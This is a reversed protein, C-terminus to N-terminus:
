FSRYRSLDIGDDPEYDEEGALFWPDVGATGQRFGAAVRREDVRGPLRVRPLYPDVQRPAIIVRYVAGKWERSVDWNQQAPPPGYAGHPREPIGDAEAGAFWDRVRQRADDGDNRKM